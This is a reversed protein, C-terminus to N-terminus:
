KLSTQAHRDSENAGAHARDTEANLRERGACTMSIETASQDSTARATPQPTASM